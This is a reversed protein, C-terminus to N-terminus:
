EKNMISMDLPTQDLMLVGPIKLDKCFSHRYVIAGVGWEEIYRNMQKKTKKKTFSLNAGYFNKADIWAIPEGNIVLNDLILFDPTNVPRGHEKQQEKLLDEQRRYNIGLDDLLNGVVVEFLDAKKATDGQDVNTVRDKEEAMKFEKADRESMKEKPQRLSDRIKVKSWGRATLIARFIAVPPFDFRRSLQLVNEGNNYRKLLTNSKSMMKHHGYVAKEQMLAKRLSLGQEISMNHPVLKEAIEDVHEDDLFGWEGPITVLDCAQRETNRKIPNVKWNYSIDAPAPEIVKPFGLPKPITEFRSMAKERAEVWISSNHYDDKGGRSSSRNRRRESNYRNKKQKNNRHSDDQRNDGNM